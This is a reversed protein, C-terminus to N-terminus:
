SKGKLLSSTESSAWIEWQGKVRPQVPTRAVKTAASPPLTKCSFQQNGWRHPLLRRCQWQHKIRGGGIENKAGPAFRSNSRVFNLLKGSCTHSPLPCSVTLSAPRSWLAALGPQEQHIKVHDAERLLLELQHVHFHLNLETCTDLPEAMPVRMGRSSTSMSSLGLLSTTNAELAQVCGRGRRGKNLSGWRLPVWPNHGGPCRCFQVYPCLSAAGLRTGGSALDNHGDVIGIVIQRVSGDGRQM